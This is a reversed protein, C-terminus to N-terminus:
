RDPQPQLKAAEDRAANADAKRDVAELIESLNTLSRALDHRYRDPSAAALERHITVTEEIAALAEAPRGLESFRVSLNNLAAALDPRYRDPSAAALERYVTVTEETIPLAEAPRGLESLTVSLNNLTAALDTRYREPNAAALERYVTVAEQEANLADGHRALESLRLGLNSLWYARVAPETGGPLRSTIRQGLAVAAPALTVTPYPIANFIAILTEAPAQMDAILDAVTPLTQSLLEEAEM